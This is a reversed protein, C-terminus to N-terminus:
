LYTKNVDQRGSVPLGLPKASPQGYVQETCGKGDSGLLFHVERRPSSIEDKGGGIVVNKSNCHVEIKLTWINGM